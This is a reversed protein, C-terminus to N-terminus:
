KETLAIIIQDASIAGERLILPTDGRADVLTSPTGFLQGGDITRTILHAKNGFQALIKEVSLETPMGAINASTATIPRGFDRVLQLPVPHNPIRIAVTGTGATLEAPLNDKATLVISLKGPLFKDALKQALPTVVAYEGAMRLDAVIISIPKKEDRGKLERLKRVAEPDTADVGLGYLTDTPYLIIDKGSFQM